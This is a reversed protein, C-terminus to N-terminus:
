FRPAMVESAIQATRNV